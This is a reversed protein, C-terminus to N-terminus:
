SVLLMPARAEISRVPPVLPLECWFTSGKGLVSAVGVRGGMLEALQRVIALGLGTGGYKRATSDDAQVFQEFVRGVADATMGIGTDAVELRLTEPGARVVRLTVGGRETFKIANGAFNMLVQRVRVPDGIQTEGIADDIDVGLTLSSAVARPGLLSAVDMLVARVDFPIREVTMQGAEIKSFDLIDNVLALLHTAARHVTQLSDRQLEDLTTHELVLDTFGLIANMPTRIEHSMNAVFASKMQTAELAKQEAFRVAELQLAREAELARQARLDRAIGLYGILEGSPTAIASVTLLVPVRVGDKRIYTWEREDTAGSVAKVVFTEFGPTVPRGLELSLEAAREIVETPDHFIGPTHKHVLEHERYGLLEEAAPNLQVITGAPTTAIVAYATGAVLAQQFTAKHLVERLLANRETQDVVTGVYGGHSGDALVVPTGKVLVERISGDARQYRQEADYVERADRAAAWRTMVRPLDDPHLADRWGFGQAAALTIGSIETYRRNVFICGGTADTRFIGVPAEDALARMEAERRQLELQMHTQADLTSRLERLSPWLLSALLVLLLLAGVAVWLRSAQQTEHLRDSYATDFTGALREFGDLLRLEARRVRIEEIRRAHTGPTTMPLAGVIVHFEQLLPELSALAIRAEPRGRAHLRDAARELLREAEQQQVVAEGIEHPFLTDGPVRVERELPAVALLTIRETLMRQRGAVNVLAPGDADADVRASFHLLAGAALTTVVILLIAFRVLLRRIAGDTGVSIAM